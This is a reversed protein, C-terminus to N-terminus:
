ISRKLAAVLDAECKEVSQRAQICADILKGINPPRRLEPSWGSEVAVLWRGLVGPYKAKISDVIAVWSALELIEQRDGEIRAELELARVERALELLAALIRCHLCGAARLCSMGSVIEVLQDVKTLDIV